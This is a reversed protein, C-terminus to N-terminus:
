LDKRAVIGTKSLAISTEQMDFFKKISEAYVINKITYKNTNKIKIEVDVL